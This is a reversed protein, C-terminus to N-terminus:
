ECAALQDDNRNSEQSNPIGAVDEPAVFVWLDEGTGWVLTVVLLGLLGEDDPTEVNGGANAEEVCVENADGPGVGLSKLGWLVQLSISEGSLLFLSLLLLTSEESSNSDWADALLVVHAHAVHAHAHAVFWHLSSGHCDRRTISCSLLSKKRALSLDCKYQFM